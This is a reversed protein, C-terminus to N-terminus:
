KTTSQNVGWWLRGELYQPPSPPGAAGGGVGGLAKNYIHGHTKNLKHQYMLGACMKRRPLKYDYVRSKNIMM